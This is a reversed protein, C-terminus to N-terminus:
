DNPYVETYHKRRANYRGPGACATTVGAAHALRGHQVGFVRAIPDGSDAACDQGHNTAASPSAQRHVGARRGERRACAGACHTPGPKADAGRGCECPRNGFLGMAYTDPPIQDCQPRVPNAASEPEPRPRNNRPGPHTPVHTSGVASGSRLFPHIRPGFAGALATRVPRLPRQPCWVQRDAIATNWCPQSCLSNGCRLSLFRDTAAFSEKGCTRGYSCRTQHITRRAIDVSRLAPAGRAPESSRGSRPDAHNIRM